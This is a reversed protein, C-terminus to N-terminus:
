SLAAIKDVIENLTPSEAGQALCGSLIEGLSVPSKLLRKRAMGYKQQALDIQTEFEAGLEQALVLELCTEFSAVRNGIFTRFEVPEEILSLRQIGINIEPHRDDPKLNSDSDFLAFVPIGFLSFVAHPRAINVKGGVPLLAIGRAEFDLGRSRAVATLAARDGVGEVLVAVSAFFGEAVLPDLIHLKAILSDSTYANNGELELTENLLSCVQEYNVQSLAFNGHGQGLTVKRRALRIQEFRETSIFHPSHSCLLIQTQNMVGPIKGGSIESLVRAIHRQKTPHQYLEPEEIALILSHSTQAAQEGQDNPEIENESTRIAQALHQLITFIFARQLGHGKGEVPGTYGQETLAVDAAPLAIRFEEPPRWALDVETDGYFKRLTGSLLTSLEGLEGINEPKVLEQYEEMTKAQWAQFEERKQVVTKVLLEILQGIVTNGKDLADAGADRVAPVFVFSVYKQLLGRGVNSFGFFQGDDRALECSEPHAAEWAEMGASVQADNTAAPLDAYAEQGRLANYAQRRPVAGDAGRVNQFNAHRPTRGFYKGNDKSSAGLSFLRTIVLEENHIRSNFQEVEEASFDTFTLTLEISENVNKNHFDEATVSSNKSFFKEIAKLSCSKGIGNGGIIVTHQGVELTEEEVARFNKIHVRALKM